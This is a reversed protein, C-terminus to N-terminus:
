ITVASVIETTLVTFLANIISPQWRRRFVTVGDNARGPCRWKLRWTMHHQSQESGNVEPSRERRCRM